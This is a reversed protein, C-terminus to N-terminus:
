TKIIVQDLYIINMYYKILFIFIFFYLAIFKIKSLEEMMNKIKYGFFNKQILIIFILNCFFSLLGLSFYNNIYNLTITQM